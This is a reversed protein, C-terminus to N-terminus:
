EGDLIQKVLKLDSESIDLLKCLKKRVRNKKSDKKNEIAIKERHEREDAEYCSDYHGM